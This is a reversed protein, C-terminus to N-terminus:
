RSEKSLQGSFSKMANESLIFAKDALFLCPIPKVRGSLADKDPLELKRKEILDYLKTHKFVGGDSIREQCGVDVFM